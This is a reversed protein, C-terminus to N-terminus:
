HVRFSIWATQAAGHEGTGAISARCRYAGLRATRYSWAFAGAADTAVSADRVPVWSRGSKRQLSLTVARGGLSAPSLTGAAKVPARRPVSAPSVRLSLDAALAELVTFAVTSVGTGAPAVVTISGSTAGVPVTATLQTASVVAFVAPVGHFAVATAGSFGAGTVTVVDGARGSQPLFGAISPKPTPQVVIFSVAGAGTGGRTTVAIPGSLAGAPVKAALQADSTVSFAAPSGAFTVTTAGAFGAGTVTVVDGAKGSLPLFAGVTPAPPLPRLHHPGGAPDTPSASLPHCTACTKPRDAHAVHTVTSGDALHCTATCAADSRWASVDQGPSHCSWCTQTRDAVEYGAHCRICMESVPTVDTHGNLHCPECDTMGGHLYWQRAGATGVGLCLVAGLVLVAVLAVRSLHRRAAGAPLRNM